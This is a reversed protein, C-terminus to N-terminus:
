KVLFGEFDHLTATLIQQRLENVFKVVQDFVKESRRSHLRCSDICNIERDSFSRPCSNTGETWSLFLSVFIPSVISSSHHEHIPSKLRRKKVRRRHRRCSRVVVRVVIMVHDHHVTRIM